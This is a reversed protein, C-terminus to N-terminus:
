VILIVAEQSTHIITNGGNNVIVVALHRPMSDFFSQHIKPICCDLRNGCIALPSSTYCSTTYGLGTMTYAQVLRIPSAIARSFWCPWPVLEIEHAFFFEQFNRAVHPRANDMLYVVRIPSLLGRLFVVKGAMLNTSGRRVWMGTYDRNRPDREPNSQQIPWKNRWTKKESHRANNWFDNPVSAISFVVSYLTNNDHEKHKPEDQSAHARPQGMEENDVCGTDTSFLSSGSTDNM